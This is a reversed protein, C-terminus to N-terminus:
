DSVSSDPAPGQYIISDEGRKKSWSILAGQVKMMADNLRHLATRMTGIKAGRNRWVEAAIDAVSVVPKGWLFVLLKWEKVNDEIPLVFRKGQWWFFHPAEPGCRPPPPPPSNAAAQPGAKVIPAAPEPVQAVNGYRGIAAAVAEVDLRLSGGINELYRALPERLAQLGTTDGPDPDQVSGPHLTDDRDPDFFNAPLKSPVIPFPARSRNLIEDKELDPWGPPCQPPHFFWLAGGPRM